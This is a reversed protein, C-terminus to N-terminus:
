KSDYGWNQKDKRGRLLTSSLNFTNMLDVKELYNINQGDSIKVLAGDGSFGHKAYAGVWIADDKNLKVNKLNEGDEIHLTPSGKTVLYHSCNTDFLDLVKNKKNKVKKLFYGSLDQARNSSAISAVEYSKFKRITKISDKSDYYYKGIKDEKYKRDM